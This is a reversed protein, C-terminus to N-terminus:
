SYVGYIFSFIYVYSYYSFDGYNLGFIYVGFIDWNYNVLNYNDYFWVFLVVFIDGDSDVMFEVIFFVCVIYYLDSDVM